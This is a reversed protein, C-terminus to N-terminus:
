TYIQKNITKNQQKKPVNSSCQLVGLKARAGAEEVILSQTAVSVFVGQAIASAPREDGPVTAMSVLRRHHARRRFTLTVEVSNTTFIEM